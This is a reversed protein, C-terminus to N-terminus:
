QGERRAEAAVTGDRGGGRAVAAVMGDSGKGVRRRWWRAM